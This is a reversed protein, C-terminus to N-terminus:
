SVLTLWFSIATTALEDRLARRMKRISKPVEPALTITDGVAANSNPRRAKVPRGAIKLSVAILRFELARVLVQANSVRKTAEDSCRLQFRAEDSIDSGMDYYPKGGFKLTKRLRLEPM